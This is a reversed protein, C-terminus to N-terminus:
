STRKSCRISPQTKMQKQTLTIYNQKVLFRTSALQESWTQALCELEVDTPADPSIGANTRATRTAEDRYHDRITQMENLNLALLGENSLRVLEEDAVELNIIAPAQRVITPREPFTLHTAQNTELQEKTTLISKEILGNFLTSALWTHDIGDPLKLFAYSIYTSITSEGEPFLVKFGDNAAAGPNDTVGPKFGVTVTLSPPIPFFNQDELM